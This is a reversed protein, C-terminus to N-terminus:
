FAENDDPDVGRDLPLELLLHVIETHGNECARIFMNDSVILGDKIMLQLLCGCCGCAITYSRNQTFSEITEIGPVL